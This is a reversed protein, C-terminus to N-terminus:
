PRCVHTSVQARLSRGPELPGPVVRGSRTMQHYQVHVTGRVVTRQQGELSQLLFLIRKKMLATLTFAHQLPSPAPQEALDTLLWM